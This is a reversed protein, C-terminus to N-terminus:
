YINEPEVICKLPFGRKEAENIVQRAKTEAIDYNYTGAIGSGKKHIELMLLKANETDKKFINQLIDKEVFDMTTYPDNLLIVNYKKSINQIFIEKVNELAKHKNKLKNM